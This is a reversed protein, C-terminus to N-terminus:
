EFGLGSWRGPEALESYALDIGDTGVSALCVLLSLTPYGLPRNDRIIADDDTPELGSSQELLELWPGFWDLPAAPDPWDNLDVVAPAEADTVATTHADTFPALWRAIRPTAHDDVDDHAIMHTGPPLEVAQVDAGNWTTVTVRPGDVEVLNFGHTPPHTGPRRGAVSELVLGGRSQLEDQAVTTVDERNLLVALRRTSPDAALWAGGARVDRVGTVGPYADPWWEGLPNWERGPDEDRVALVRTPEAASEPVQIIVTCM